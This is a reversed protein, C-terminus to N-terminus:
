GEIVYSRLRGDPTVHTTVKFLQAIKAAFFIGSLLVGVLVGIVLNHTWVVAAV